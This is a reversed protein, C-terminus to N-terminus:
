GWKVSLSVLESFEGGLSLGARQGMQVLETGISAAGGVGQGGVQVSDGRRGEGEWISVRSCDTLVM